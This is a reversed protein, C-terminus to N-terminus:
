FGFRYLLGCFLKEWIVLISSLSLLKNFSAVNRLDDSSSFFLPDLLPFLLCELIYWISPVLGNTLAIWLGLPDLQMEFTEEWVAATNKLLRAVQPIVEPFM